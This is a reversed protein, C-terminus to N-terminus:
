DKRSKKLEIFNITIIALALIIFIGMIYIPVRNINWYLDILIIFIGMYFGFMFCSLKDPMILELLQMYEKIKNLM